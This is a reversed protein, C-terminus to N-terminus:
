HYKFSIVKYVISKVMKKLILISHKKFFSVDYEFFLFDIILVILKKPNATKKVNIWSHNWLHIALTDNQIYISYDDLRNSYPIPYFVSSSFIKYNLSNELNKSIKSSLLETITIPNIYDFDNDYSSKCLNMIESNKKCGIIAFGIFQEDEKGIFFDYNLLHDIKKILIMDTDLYVGGYKELVCIRIYDAAFAFKNKRLAQRYYKNSFQRSNFENWEIIEYDPCYTKWSHICREVILPKITGGFWCYHIVKAIV